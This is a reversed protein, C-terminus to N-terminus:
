FRQAAGIDEIHHHRSHIREIAQFRNILLSLQAALFDLFQHGEPFSALLIAVLFSPLCTLTVRTRLVIPDSWRWRPVTRARPRRLIRWVTVWVSLGTSRPM